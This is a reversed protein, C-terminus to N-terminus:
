DSSKRNIMRLVIDKYDLNFMVTMLEKSVMTAIPVMIYSAKDWKFYACLISTVIGCFLGAGFTACVSWFTIKRGQLIEYSIERYYRGADRISYKFDM